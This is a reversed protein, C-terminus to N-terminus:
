FDGQETLENKLEDSIELNNINNMIEDYKEKDTEKIKQAQIYLRYAENENVASEKEKLIEEKEATLKEIEGNLRNNEQTLALNQNSVEQVKDNSNFNRIIRDDGRNISRSLSIGGILICIMAVVLLTISYKILNKENHNKNNM